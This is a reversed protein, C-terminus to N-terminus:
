EVEPAEGHASVNVIPVGEDTYGVVTVISHKAHGELNEANTYYPSAVVVVEENDM